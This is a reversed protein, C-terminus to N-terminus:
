FDVGLRTVVFPKALHHVGIIVEIPHVPDIGLQFFQPVKFLGVDMEVVFIGTIWFARSFGKRLDDCEIRVTGVLHKMIHCVQKLTM